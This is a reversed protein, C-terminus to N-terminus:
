GFNKANGGALVGAQQAACEGRKGGQKKYLEEHANKGFAQPSSKEKGQM